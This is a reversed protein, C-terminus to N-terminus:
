CRPFLALFSEVRKLAIQRFSIKEDRKEGGDCARERERERERKREKQGSKM